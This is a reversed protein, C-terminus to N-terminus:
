FTIGYYVFLGNNKRGFNGVSYGINLLSNKPLGFSVGPPVCGFGKKGRFWEAVFRGKEAPPKEFGGGGGRKGARARGVGGIGYGGVTFRPGYDGKFKKSMNGYFFGFTDNDS